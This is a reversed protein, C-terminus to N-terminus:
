PSRSPPTQKIAQEIEQWCFPSDLSGLGTYSNNYLINLDINSAWVRNERFLNTFYSTAIALKSPDDFFEQQDLCLVKMKNKRYRYTAM